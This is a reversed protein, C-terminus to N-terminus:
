EMVVTPSEPARRNDELRGQTLVQALALVSPLVLDPEATRLDEEGTQGTLVAVTAMGAAKGMQIDTPHDGVMLGHVPSVKLAMLAQRMHDIHPKPREVDERCLIVKVPLAVDGLIM